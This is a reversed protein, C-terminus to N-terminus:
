VREAGDVKALKQDFTGVPLHGAKRAVEVIMCDAFDRGKGARYLEVASAAVEPEQVTVHEQQLLMEIATAIAKRDFRYVSDLVWALEVLVVHSVWAGGKAIFAQAAAVQTADDRTALRVIVNTDVARMNRASTRGSGM